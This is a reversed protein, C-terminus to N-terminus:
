QTLTIEERKGGALEVRQALEGGQTALYAYRGGSPAQWTVTAIVYYSGDPLGAFNFQGQANCKKARIFPVAEDPMTAKDVSQSISSAYGGAASGFAWRAYIETRENVPVLKVDLGACTKVDGGRTRLVADGSVSNPGSGASWQLGTAGDASSQAQALGAGGAACAAIGVALVALKLVGV